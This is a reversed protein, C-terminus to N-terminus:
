NNGKKSFWEEAQQKFTKSTENERRERETDQWTDMFSFYDDITYSGANAQEIFYKSAKIFDDMTFGENAFEQMYRQLTSPDIGMDILMKIIDTEMFEDYEEVSGNFANLINQATNEKLKNLHEKYKEPNLYTNNIISDLLQEYAKLDKVTLNKFSLRPPNKLGRSKYFNKKRQLANKRATHDEKLYKKSGFLM